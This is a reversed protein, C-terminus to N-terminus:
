KIIMLKKVEHFEGTQISYFYIGSAIGTANFVVQYVGPKLEENVLSTIEAGLLDFIKLVVNTREPISFRITTTPNFPNPYNQELSFKFPIYDDTSIINTLIASTTYWFGSSVMFNEATTGIFTQGTTGTISYNSGVISAGGSSLVGTSISYQAILSQQTLLALYFLTIILISKNKM